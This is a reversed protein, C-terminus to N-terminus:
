GGDTPDIRGLAVSLTSKGCGSQGVISVFEGPEVRFNMNSLAHTEGKEGFYRLHVGRFEVKAPATDRAPAPLPM